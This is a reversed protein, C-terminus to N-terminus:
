GSQESMTYRHVRVCEGGGAGQGPWENGPQESMTYRHVRVCEGGGAGQGPWENGSQKSMTYLRNCPGAAPAEEDEDSDQPALPAPTPLLPPDATLPM